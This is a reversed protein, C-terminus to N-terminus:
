VPDVSFFPWQVELISSLFRYIDSKMWKHSKKQRERTFSAKRPVPSPDPIWVHVAPGRTSAANDGTVRTHDIFNRGLLIRTYPANDARPECSVYIISQCNPMYALLSSDDFETFIRLRFGEFRPPSLWRMGGCKGDNNNYGSLVKNQGESPRTRHSSRMALAAVPEPSHLQTGCSGRSVCGACSPAAM